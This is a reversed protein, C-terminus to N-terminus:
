NNKYNCKLQNDKIDNSICVNSLTGILEDSLKEKSSLVLKTLLRQPSIRTGILENSMFRLFQGLSAYTELSVIQGALCIKQGLSTPIDIMISQKKQVLTYTKTRELM